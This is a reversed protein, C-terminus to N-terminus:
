RQRKHRLMDLDDAEESTKGVCYERTVWERVYFSEGCHSCEVEEPGDDTGWYTVLGLEGRECTDEAFEAGCYPCPLERRMRARNLIDDVLSM